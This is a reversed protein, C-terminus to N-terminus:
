QVSYRDTDIKYSSKFTNDNVMQEKYKLIHKWLALKLHCYSHDLALYSSGYKSSTVTPAFQFIYASSVVYM